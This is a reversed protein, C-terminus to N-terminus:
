CYSYVFILSEDIIIEINRIHGAINQLLENILATVFNVEEGLLSM